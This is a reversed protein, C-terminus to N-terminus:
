DIFLWFRIPPCTSQPQVKLNALVLFQSFPLLLHAMVWPLIILYLLQQLFLWGTMYSNLYAAMPWKGSQAQPLLPPNLLRLLVLPSHKSAIPLILFAWCNLWDCCILILSIQTHTHTKGLDLSGRPLHSLSMINGLSVGLEQVWTIRIGLGKLYPNSYLAM